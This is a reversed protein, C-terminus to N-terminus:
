GGKTSWLEEITKKVLDMAEQRSSFPLITVTTMDKDDCIAKDDLFMVRVQEHDVVFRNVEIRHDHHTSKLLKTDWNLNDM